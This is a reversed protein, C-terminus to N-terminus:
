SKIKDVVSYFFYNGKRDERVVVIMDEFDGLRLYHYRVWHASEKIPELSKIYFAKALLEPLKQMLNNKLYANAHPQNFAEKIAKNNVTVTGIDNKYTGSLTDKLKPYYSQTQVRVLANKAFNAM